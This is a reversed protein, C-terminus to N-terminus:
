APNEISIALIRITIKTIRNTIDRSNPKAKLIQHANGPRCYPMALCYLKKVRLEVPVYSVNRFVPSVITVESAFALELQFHGVSQDLINTLQPVSLGLSLM